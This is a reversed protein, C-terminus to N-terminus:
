FCLVILNTLMIHYSIISIFLIRQPIKCKISVGRNTSAALAVLDDKLQDAMSDINTETQDTASSSLSIRSRITMTTHIQFSQVQVSFVSVLLAVYAFVSMNCVIM